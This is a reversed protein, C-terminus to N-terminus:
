SFHDDVLKVERRIEANLSDELHEFEKQIEDQKQQLEERANEREERAAEIEEQLNKKERTVDDLKEQIERDNIAQKLESIDDDTEEIEQVMQKLDQLEQCGEKFKELQRGELISNDEVLDVLEDLNSAAEPNKMYKRDLLDELDSKKGEFNLGQNEIGYLSKKIGREVKSISGEVSSTKSDKEDKLRQLRDQEDKLDKMAESSRLEEVKNEKKELEQELNEINNSNIEQRLDNIRGKKQILREKEQRFEELKQVPKFGKEAFEELDESHNVAKQISKELRGSKEHIRQMVAGEKMSVNNFEEIFDKFQNSHEQIDKSLNLNQILNRRTNYFNEAVDEVIDLNEEDEYDKVEELSTELESVVEDSKEILQNKRDRCEGIQDKKQKEYVQDVEELSVELTERSSGLADKIKKLPNM